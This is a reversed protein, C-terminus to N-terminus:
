RDDECPEARVDIRSISSAVAEYYSQVPASEISSNPRSKRVLRIKAAVKILPTGRVCGPLRGRVEDHKSEDFFIPLDDMRKPRQREVDLVPMSGMGGTWGVGVFFVANQPKATLSFKESLDTPTRVEKGAWAGGGVCLLLICSWVVFFRKFPTM